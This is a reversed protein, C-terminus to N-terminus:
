AVGIIIGGIIIALMLAIGSKSVLALLIAGMVRAADIINASQRQLSTRVILYIYPYLVFSFLLILGTLSRFEPLYAHPSDDFQQMRYAIIYTPISFPLFLAWSFFNVYPFRYFSVLLALGAGLLASIIGVGLLLILTNMLYHSFLPLLDSVGGQMAYIVLTLVPLLLMSAVLWVPAIFLFPSSWLRPLIAM